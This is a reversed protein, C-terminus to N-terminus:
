KKSPSPVPKWLYNWYIIQYALFSLLLTIQLTIIGAATESGLWPASDHLRLWLVAASTLAVPHAVFLVAHLWHESATCLRAHVFEDKTIFLCSFAALGIYLKLAFDSPPLTAVVSYCLLVTLTDLPHGVREWRPLGRKRHFYFEDITM